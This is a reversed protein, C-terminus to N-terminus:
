QQPPILTMGQPGISVTGGRLTTIVTSAAIGGLLLTLGWRLHGQEVSHRVGEAVGRMLGDKQFLEMENEDKM